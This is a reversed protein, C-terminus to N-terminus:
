QQKMGILRKVQLQKEHQAERQMMGNTRLSSTSTNTLKTYSSMTTKATATRQM